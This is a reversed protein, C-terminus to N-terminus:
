IRGIFEHHPLDDFKQDNIMWDQDWDFGSRFVYGLSLATMRFVTAFIYFHALDKAFTPSDKDPWRIHPASSHYPVIDIAKSLDTPVLVNHKSNPWEVKSRQPVSNFYENQLCKSRVGCLVSCDFIEVVKHATEQIEPVCTILRSNSRKGFKAM